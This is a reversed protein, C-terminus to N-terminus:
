GVVSVTAAVARPGLEQAAREAHVDLHARAAATAHLEQGQDAVRRPDGPEEGGEAQRGSGGRQCRRPSGGVPLAAGQGALSVLRVALNAEVRGRVAPGLTEVPLRIALSQWRRRMVGLVDTEQANSPRKERREGDPSRNEAAGGVRRRGSVGKRESVRWRKGRNRRCRCPARSSAPPAPSSRPSSGSGAGPFAQRSRRWRRTA